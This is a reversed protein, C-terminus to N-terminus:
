WKPPLAAEGYSKERHERNPMDGIRPWGWKILTLGTESRAWDMCWQRFQEDFLHRRFEARGWRQYLSWFCEARVIDIGPQAKTFTADKPDLYAAGPVRLTRLINGAEPRGSLGIAAVVDARFSYVHAPTYGWSGLSNLPRHNYWWSPDLMKKLLKFAENNEQACVGLAYIFQRMAFEDLAGLSEWPAARLRSALLEPVHKGSTYVLCWGLAVQQPRSPQKLFQRTLWVEDAPRVLALMVADPRFSNTQNLFVPKLHSPMSDWELVAPPPMEMEMGMAQKVFSVGLLLVVACIVLFRSPVPRLAGKIADPAPTKVVNM